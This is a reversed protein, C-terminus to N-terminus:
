RAPFAHRDEVTAADELVEDLTRRKWAMASWAPGALRPDKVIRPSEPLAELTLGETALYNDDYISDAYRHGEDPFICVVRADPHRRAWYRAAIWTAGSTGGRYLTTRRHLLRTAFYAEAASVWHVEDFATHDLNKPLISNGLGRLTRSGDPQGFLVSQFTDVGVVYLSPFLSRLFHSAGCVSGGSGVSGVLCDIQGLSEVLQAALSGYAGPNGPNDYQNLWWSGRNAALIQQVRDLRARQYGGVAAPNQMIEVRAGLEELRVRLAPGCARDTVITLRQGTMRCAIALGLAMTGSSTEVILDEASIAGERNAVRLCFEAPYIKMLPFCVATLNHDISVLTPRYHELISPHLNM